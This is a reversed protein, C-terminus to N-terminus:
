FYGLLIALGTAIFAVALSLNFTVIVLYLLLHDGRKIIWGRLRIQGTRLGVLVPWAFLTAIMLAILVRMLLLM